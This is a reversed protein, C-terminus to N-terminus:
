DDDDEGGYAGPRNRSRAERMVDVMGAVNFDGDKGSLCIGATTVRLDSGIRSSYKHEGDRWDIVIGNGSDRWSLLEAGLFELHYRIRGELTQTREVIKAREEAAKRALIRDNIISFAVDIEDGHGLSLMPYTPNIPQHGLNGLIYNRASHTGTMQHYILNDLSGRAQIIDFSEITDRVLYVPVPGSLWGRQHMDGHNFPYCLWTQGGLRYLVILTWRPKLLELYSNAEWEQAEDFHAYDIRGKDTPHIKLWGDPLNKRPYVFPVTGVRTLISETNPTIPAVFNPPRINFKDILDKISM